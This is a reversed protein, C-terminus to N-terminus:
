DMGGDERRRRKWKSGSLKKSSFHRTRSPAGHTRRGVLDPFFNTKKPLSVHSLQFKVIGVLYYKHRFVFSHVKLYERSIYSIEIERSLTLFRYSGYGHWALDENTKRRVDTPQLGHHYEGFM